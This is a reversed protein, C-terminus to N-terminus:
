NVATEVVWLDPMRLRAWADLDPPRGTLEAKLLTWATGHGAPDLGWEHPPRGRDTTSLGHRVLHVRRSTM